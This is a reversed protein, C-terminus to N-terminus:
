PALALGQHPWWGYLFALLGASLVLLPWYLRAPVKAAVAIFVGLATWALRPTPGPKDALGLALVALVTYVCVVLPLRAPRMLAIGAILALAMVILLANFFPHARTAPDTWTLVRLEHGIWDARQLWSGGQDRFWFFFDHYEGALLAFYGAMGLPALVPAVLAAWERRRRIAQFAAVALAPTLVILVPHDASAVCALLGAALWKRNLVALLSLAALANGLPEPYFMGLTMAGPFALYLLVTRDAVRHDKIHAALAWVAVASAAGAVVQVLIEASLYQHQTMYATTRALEPILPFFVTRSFPPATFSRPSSYAHIAIWNYNGADGYRFYKGWPWATHYVSNAVQWAVLILVWSAGFALVPFLWPTPLRDSLAPRHGQAPPPAQAPGPEAGNASGEARDLKGPAALEGSKRSAEPSTTM